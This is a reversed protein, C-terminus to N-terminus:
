VPPRVGGGGGDADADPHGAPDPQLLRLRHLRHDV